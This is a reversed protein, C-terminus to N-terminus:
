SQRSANGRLGQRYRSVHAVYGAGNVVRDVNWNKDYAKISSCPPHSPTTTAARFTCSEFSNSGVIAAVNDFTGVGARITLVRRALFCFANTKPSM